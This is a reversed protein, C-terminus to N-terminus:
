FILKEIRDAAETVDERLAFASFRVFNEKGAFGSSPTCCIGAKTLVLDSFEESTMGDPCRAYVYPSCCTNNYWIKRNQFAIKLISANTKYFNVRKETEKKGLPTFAAAAGRQSIYSVGNFRAGLRRKWLANLRGLNKPVVTFGVRIGTFGLSKSFSRIEIACRDAYPVAYVTKPKDGSVYSSYAGDYVIVANASLAYDVWAKLEKYSFTAGTPNNPSCLYILDYAKGYPPVPIFGDESTAHLFEVDNGLIVNAEAGAPYCPAAFLVKIGKEFLEAVNGLESKAGDSVFIEDPSVKAGDEIYKNAIAERLFPYGGTPPYGRFTERNQMEDAALKMERVFIEPLPLKVDGVGLDIIRGCFTKKAAAVKEALRAFVYSKPLADFASNIKM